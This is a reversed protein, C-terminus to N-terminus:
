LKQTKTNENERLYKAIALSMGSVENLSGYNKRFDDENIKRASIKLFAGM